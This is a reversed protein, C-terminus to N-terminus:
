FTWALFSEEYEDFSNIERFIKKFDKEKFFTQGETLYLIYINSKDLYKCHM